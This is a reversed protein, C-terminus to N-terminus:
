ILTQECPFISTTLLTLPFKRVEQQQVIGTNSGSISNKDWLEQYVYIHMRPLLFITRAIQRAHDLLGADIMFTYSLMYWCKGASELFTVPHGYSSISRRVQRVDEAQLEALVDPDEEPVVSRSYGDEDLLSIFRDRM